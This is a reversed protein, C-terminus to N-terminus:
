VAVSGSVEHVSIEIVHKMPVMGDPSEVLLEKKTEEKDDKPHKAETLGPLVLALSTVLATFLGPGTSVGTFYLAVLPLDLVLVPLSVSLWKPMRDWVPKCAIILKTSALFGASLYAAVDAVTIQDSLPMTSM